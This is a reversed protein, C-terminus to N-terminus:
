KNVFKIYLIENPLKVIAWHFIWLLLSIDGNEYSLVPQYPPEQAGPGQLQHPRHSEVGVAEQAM